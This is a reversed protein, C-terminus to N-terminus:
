YTMSVGATGVVWPDDDKNIDQLNANFTYLTAGMSFAWSGYDEPIFALPVSGVLGFTTYGWTENNSGDTEYYNNLSLGTVIPIARLRVSRATM